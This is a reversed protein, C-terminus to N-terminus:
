LSSVPNLVYQQRHHEIRRQKRWNWDERTWPKVLRLRRRMQLPLLESEKVSSRGNANLKKAVYLRRKERRKKKSLLVNDKLRWSRKVSRKHLWNM